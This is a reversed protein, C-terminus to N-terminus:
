VLKFSELLTICVLVLLLSSEKIRRFGYANNCNVTYLAICILICLAALRDIFFQLALKHRVSIWKLFKCGVISIRPFESVKSSLVYQLGEPM